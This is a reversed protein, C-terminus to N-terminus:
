NIPSIWNSHIREDTFFRSRNHGCCFYNYFFFILEIYAQRTGYVRHMTNVMWGYVILMEFFFHDNFFMFILELKRHSQCLCRSGKNVSCKLQMMWENTVGYPDRENMRGTHMICERIQANKWNTSNFIHKYIPLAMSYRHM